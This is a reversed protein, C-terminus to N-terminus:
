VAGFYDEAKYFLNLLEGSVWVHGTLIESFANPDHKLENKLENETFWIKGDKEDIFTSLPLGIEELINQFNTL